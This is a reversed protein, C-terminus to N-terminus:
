DQHGRRSPMLSVGIVFVLMIFIVLLGLWAPPSKQLSPQPAPLVEQAQAAACVLLAALMGWFVRTRALLGTQRNRIMRSLM